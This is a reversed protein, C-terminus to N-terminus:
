LFGLLEHSTGLRHVVLVHGSMSVDHLTGALVFSFSRRGFGLKIKGSTLQLCGMGLASLVHLGNSVELLGSISDSLLNLAVSGHSLGVSFLGILMTIVGGIEIFLM